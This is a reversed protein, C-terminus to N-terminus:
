QFVPEDDRTADLVANVVRVGTDLVCKLEEYTFPGQTPQNAFLSRLQTRIIRLARKDMNDSAGAIAKDVSARWKCVAARVTPRPFLRSM